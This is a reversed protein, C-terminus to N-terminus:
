RIMRACGGSRSGDRARLLPLQVRSTHLHTQHDHNWPHSSRAPSPERDPSSTLVNTPTM